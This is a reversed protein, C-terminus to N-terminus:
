FNSIWSKIGYAGIRNCSNINTYQLNSKVYGRLVVTSLGNYSSVKNKLSGKSISKSISRSATLRKTLRGTGQLKMGSVIKHNLYYFVLRSKYSIPKCILDKNLLLYDDNLSFNINKRIFTNDLSNTNLYDSYFKNFYPKKSLRLAMRIVRLVRRKRNKLKKVIALALINGDLYLYKLKVINVEIKKNYLKNICDKVILLNRINFKYINFFINRKFWKLLYISKLLKNIMLYINILKILYILYNIKLKKSYIKELDKLVIILNNVREEKLNFIVKKMINMMKPFRIYYFFYKMLCLYLYRKTEINFISEKFISKNIVKVKGNLLHKNSLDANEFYICIYKYLLVISKNGFLIILFKRFLVTLKQNLRNNTFEFFYKIWKNYIYITINIKNSFHKIEPRGVFIKNMSLSNYKYNRLFNFYVDFLRYVIKDKLPLINIYNDKIYIYVSNYWEKVSSPYHKLQGKKLRKRRLYISNNLNEIELNRISSSRNKSKENLIYM